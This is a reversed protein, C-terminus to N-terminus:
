DCGLIPAFKGMLHCVLAWMHKLTFIGYNVEYLTKLRSSMTRMRETPKLLANM